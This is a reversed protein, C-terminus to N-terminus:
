DPWAWSNTRVLDAPTSPEMAMFLEAMSSGDDGSIGDSQGFGARGDPTLFVEWVVGENQVRYEVVDYGPWATVRLSGDVVQWGSDERPLQVPIASDVVEERMYFAYAVDSAVLALVPIALQAVAIRVRRPVQRVIWAILRWLDRIGLAGIMPALLLPGPLLHGLDALFAGPGHADFLPRVLEQDATGFRTAFIVMAVAIALLTPLAVRAIAGALLTVVAWLALTGTLVQGEVYARRSEDPLWDPGISAFRIQVAAAVAVAIGIAFAVYSKGVSAGVRGLLRRPVSGDRDRGSGTVSEDVSM